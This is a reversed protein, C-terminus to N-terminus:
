STTRVVKAMSNGPWACGSFRARVILLLAQRESDPLQAFGISSGARECLLTVMSSNSIEGAKIAEVYANRCHLDMDEPTNVAAFTGRFTAEAIM